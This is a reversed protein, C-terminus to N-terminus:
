IGLMLAKSAGGSYTAALKGILAKNQWAYGAGAKIGKWVGAIIQDKRAFAGGHLGPHSANTLVEMMNSNYFEVAASGRHLSDRGPLGEMFREVRVRYVATSAPLGAAFCNRVQFTPRMFTTASPVEYRPPQTFLVTDYFGDQAKGTYNADDYINALTQSQLGEVGASNICYFRGSATQEAGVYQVTIRYMLLRAFPFAATYTTMDPHAIPNVLGTAGATITYNNRAWALVPDVTFACYGAADSSIQYEDVLVLPVSEELISDPLRFPEDSTGAVTALMGSAASSGGLAISKLAEAQKAAPRRAKPRQQKLPRSTQKSKPM